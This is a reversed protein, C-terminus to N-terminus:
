NASPTWGWGAEIIADVPRSQIAQAIIDMVLTAGEVPIDEDTYTYSTFLKSGTETDPAVPNTYYYYGDSGTSWNAGSLGTFTGISNDWAAVIKGDKVWNAVVAARIYADTNGTNKIVVNSKTKGNVDDTVEVNVKGPIFTNVVPDPKVTLWAITGSVTGTLIVLVLALLLIAKKNLKKM